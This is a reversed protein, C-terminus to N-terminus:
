RRQPTNKQFERVRDLSVIGASAGPAQINHAAVANGLLAADCVSEGARLGALFGASWCDGAGTTDVVNDVQYAPVREEVGDATRVYAGAADHKVVVNRCGRDQLARAIEFPDKKGTIARAELDSPIFYDLHPLTPHISAQWRAQPATDDYVTDLLTVGGADRAAALVGATQEGDLTPMVMTGTVFCFKAREVISLDVDAAEFTGNTGLTHIFSRQGDEHGVVFTFPTHTHEDRVVGATGIGYQKLEALIFDGLTDPGTKVIVDCAVGLKALAVSCNVANGGTTLTLSDFLRLGGRPPYDDLTRAIADVTCIGVNVIDSM